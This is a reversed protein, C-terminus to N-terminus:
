NKAEDVLQSDTKNYGSIELIKQCYAQYEGDNDLMEVILEEASMVGYSDQLEKDNLNPFVTCKAAIMRNFKANDVDVKKGKQNISTCENRIYDAEKTKLSRIEWMLSNGKEDEFSESAAIQINNREIKSQKMFSNFNSM